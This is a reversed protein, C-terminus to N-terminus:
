SVGRELPASVVISGEREFVQMLAVPQCWAVSKESGLNKGTYVEYQSRYITVFRRYPIIVVPQM